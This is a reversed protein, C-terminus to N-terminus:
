KILLIEKKEKKKVARIIHHQMMITQVNITTPELELRTLGFVTFNTETTNGSYV